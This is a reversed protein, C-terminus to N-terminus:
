NMPKILPGIEMAVNLFNAVVKTTHMHSIFMRPMLMYHFYALINKAALRRPLTFLRRNSLLLATGFM